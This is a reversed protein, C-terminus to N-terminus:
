TSAFKLLKKASQDGVVPLVVCDFGAEKLYTEGVGAGSFMISYKM